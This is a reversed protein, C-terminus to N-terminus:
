FSPFAMKLTRAEIQSTFQSKNVAAHNYQNCQNLNVLTANIKMLLLWRFASRRVNESGVKYRIARFHVVVLCTRFRVGRWQRFRWLWLWHRLWKRSCSIISVVCDRKSLPNVNQMKHLYGVASFCYTALFRFMCREKTSKNIYYIYVSLLIQMKRRSKFKLLCSEM